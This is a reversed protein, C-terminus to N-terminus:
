FLHRQLLSVCAMGNANGLAAEDTCVSKRYFWLQVSCAVLWYELVEDLELALHCSNAQCSKHLM